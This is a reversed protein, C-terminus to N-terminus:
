EGGFFRKALSKKVPAAKEESVPKTTQTGDDVREPQTTKARPAAKAVLTPLLVSDRGAFGVASFTLAFPTRLKRDLSHPFAALQVDPIARNRPLFVTVFEGVIQELFDIADQERRPNPTSGQPAVSSIMCRVTFDKPELVASDNVRRGIGGQSGPDVSHRPLIVTRSFEVSEVIDLVLSRRDERMIVLESM